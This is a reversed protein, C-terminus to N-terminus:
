VKASDGSSGKQKGANTKEKNYKTSLKKDAVVRYGMVNIEAGALAAKKEKATIEGLKRLERVYHVPVVIPRRFDHIEKHIFTLKDRLM